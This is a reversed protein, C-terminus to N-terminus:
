YLRMYEEVEWDTIAVSFRDWEDQKYDCYSAHMGDGMVSQMFADGRLLAIAEGLSRPLRQIGLASLAEASMKYLDEGLPPGPDLRGELGQVTAATTGALALYANMCMDAARNEICYRNQPLRLMASRNNPGYTMHTPAWTFVGGEFGPVRAVLGKYSNVTSCTIATLGGGYRLLGGVAHQVRDSWGRDGSGFLNSGTALDQISFNIHAGSRWDGITFKPMFTVFLGHRKAIEKLLVRLFTLRDAMGVADTYGFDLEFQSYAGEAVVDHLDWELAGLIDILAGLFGMADISAEVDYGWAQRRPRRGNALPPDNDFAKVARGAEDHRLVIFEPEVGAMPRYGLSQAAQVQRKLAQRPCHSYPRGEWYLDAFIWAQRSDWPCAYVADLDPIMIQDPNAPGLEPVFSISHVAFQPGKGLCLAELEALPVPKTKPLGLLDIWCSLIYKVGAAELRQRLEPIRARNREIAAEQTDFYVQTM